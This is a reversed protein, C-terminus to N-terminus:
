PTTPRAAGVDTPRYPLRRTAAHDVLWARRSCRLSQCLLSGTSRSSALMPLATNSRRRGADTVAGVAVGAAVGGARTAVAATGIGTAGRATAATVMAAAGMTAAGKAATGMAATGMAAVGRGGVGTREPSATAM